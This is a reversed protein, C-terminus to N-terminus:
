QGEETPTPLPETAAPRRFLTLTLRDGKSYNFGEVTAAAEIAVGREALASRFTDLRTERIVAVACADRAILDVAPGSGGSLVTDTGTWFVLSPETFHASAVRTEAPPCPAIREVARAVQRSVHATDLAPAVLQFAVAALVAMAAVPAGIALAPREGAMAARYGHFALAWAVPVVAIASWFLRGESVIPLAALALPLGLAPIGFLVAAVIRGARGPPGAAVDRPRDLIAWAVLLALAPYTPLVYHPLKTAVLEFVLWTPLIWALCFRVAPERWRRRIMPVALVLGLTAPWFTVPFLGLYYGPPAGHSEQGSFLKGLLDTGVSDEYFGGGSQLGIAVFWPAAVLLALPAGITPRLDGLWDGRRDAVVLAAATLAAVMLPIPGKVLGGLGLAVWFGLAVALGIPRGKAERRGLYARALAGQAWVVTALLVADTKALRSEIAILVTAALLAAGGIAAAPGFLRVGAWATLLVAATAGLVSPLRYPWIATAEPESFLAVSASQLWYIGAPKNHRPDDQFRIDVFDGSELMQRSAQAFRAEDRDVPPVAAQGPAFLIACLILLGFWAGGPM